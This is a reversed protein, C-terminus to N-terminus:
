TDLEFQPSSGIVRGATDLAEVKFVRHNPEVQIATEFGSKARNAVVALHEASPGALVRWAVVQTAGNWSAYVTTKGDAQRVAFSPPYSPLGVWHAVEM